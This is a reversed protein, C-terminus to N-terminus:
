STEKQEEQNKGLRLYIALLEVAIFLLLITNIAQMANGGSKM